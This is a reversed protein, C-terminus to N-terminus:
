PFILRVESILQGSIPYIAIARVPPRGKDFVVSEEDIVRNGLVMRRVLTCHLDKMQQIMPGYQSRMAEKGKYLLQQPYQYVAVTDSYVALFEEINRQNYANLQKQALSEALSDTQSHGPILCGATFFLLLFKKMAFCSFRFFCGSGNIAKRKRQSRIEGIKLWATIKLVGM